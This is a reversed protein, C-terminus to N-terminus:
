LNTVIYLALSATGAFSTDYFVNGAVIGGLDTDGCDCENANGGSQLRGGLQRRLLLRATSGLGGDTGGNTVAGNTDFESWVRRTSAYFEGCNEIAYGIRSTEGIFRNFYIYDQCYSSKCPKGARAIGDNSPDWFTDNEHKFDSYTEESHLYYKTNPYPDAQSGVWNSATAIVQSFTHTGFNASGLWWTSVQISSPVSVQCCPLNYSVPLPQGTDCDIVQNDPRPCSGNDFCPEQECECPDGECNDCCNGREQDVRRTFFTTM